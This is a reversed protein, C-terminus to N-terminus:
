KQSNGDNETFMLNVFEAVNKESIENKLWVALYDGEALETPPITVDEIAPLNESSALSRM